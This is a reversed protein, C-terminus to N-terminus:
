LGLLSAHIGQYFQKPKDTTSTTKWARHYVALYKYGHVTCWQKLASVREQRGNEFTVLWNLSRGNGEGSLKDSIAARHAASIQKGTHVLKNRESVIHSRQKAAHSLKARTEPTNHTLKKSISQKVRTTNHVIRGSMSVRIQDCFVERLIAYSRSTFRTSYRRSHTMRWLAYNMKRRELGTTIRVLLKHCVFHERATLKVLNQESNDGGLSKPIIHHSESYTNPCIREQARDIISFYYKTYKTQIFM